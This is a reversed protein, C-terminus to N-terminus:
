KQAGGLNKAAWNKILEREEATLTELTLTRKKPRKKSKTTHWTVSVGSVKHCNLKSKEWSKGRKM